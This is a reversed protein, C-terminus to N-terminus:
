RFHTCSRNVNRTVHDYFQGSDGGSDESGTRPPANGAEPAAAEAELPRRPAFQLAEDRNTFNPIAQDLGTLTFVRLVWACTVLQRAVVILLGCRSTVRMSARAVRLEASPRVPLPHGM